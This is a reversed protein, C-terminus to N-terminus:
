YNQQYLKLAAAENKTRKVKLTISTTFCALGLVGMVTAGAMADDFYNLTPSVSSQSVMYMAAIACPFFAFGVYQGNAQRQALKIHKSIKPDKLNLLVTHMEKNGIISGDYVFKTTGFPTLKPYKKYQAVNNDTKNIVPQIPEVYEFTETIANNYVISFIDNKLDSYTPGDLHEMRKYKILQSTIETVKGIVQNGNRFHLTDQATSISNLAILCIFLIAPKIIYLKTKM